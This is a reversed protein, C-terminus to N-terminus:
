RLSKQGQSASVPDFCQTIAVSEAVLLPPFCSWSKWSRLSLLRLLGGQWSAEKKGRGDTPIDLTKMKKRGVLIFHRRIKTGQQLSLFYCLPFAYLLFYKEGLLIYVKSQLLPSHLPDFDMHPFLDRSMTDHTNELFDSAGPCALIM